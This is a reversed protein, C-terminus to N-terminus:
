SFITSAKKASTICMLYVLQCNDAFSLPSRAHNLGVVDWLYRTPEINMEYNLLM